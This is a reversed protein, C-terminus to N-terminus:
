QFSHAKKEPFPLLLSAHRFAQRETESPLPLGICRKARRNRKFVRPLFFAAQRQTLLRSSKRFKLSLVAQWRGRGDREDKEIHITQRRDRSGEIHTPPSSSLSSPMRELDLGALM